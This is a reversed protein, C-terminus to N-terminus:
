SFLITLDYKLQENDDRRPKQTTKFGNRNIKNEIKKRKIVGSKFLSKFRLPLLFRFFCFCFFRFAELVVWFSLLSSLSCSFHSKVTKNEEINM